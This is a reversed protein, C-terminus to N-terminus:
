RALRAASPPEGEKAENHLEKDIFKKVRKLNM